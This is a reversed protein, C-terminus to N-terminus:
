AMLLSLFSDRPSFFAERLGVPRGGWAPSEGRFKWNLVGPLFSPLFPSAPLFTMATANQGEQKETSDGFGSTVVVGQQNERDEGVALAQTRPRRGQGGM